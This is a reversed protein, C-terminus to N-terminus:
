QAAAGRGRGGGSGGRGGGGGGGGLRVPPTNTTITWRMLGPPRVSSTYLRGNKDV